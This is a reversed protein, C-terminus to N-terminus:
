KFDVNDLISESVNFFENVLEFNEPFTTIMFTNTKILSSPMGIEKKNRKESLPYTKVSFIPRCNVTM